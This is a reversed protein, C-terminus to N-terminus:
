RLLIEAEFPAGNLARLAKKDIKGIANMPLEKVFEVHKPRKYNAILGVCHAIIEDANCDTDAKAV